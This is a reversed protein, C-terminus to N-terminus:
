SEATKGQIDANDEVDASKKVAVDKADELVVDDDANINEILGGQKSVDDIVT